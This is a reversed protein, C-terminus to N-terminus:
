ETGDWKLKELPYWHWYMPVRLKRTYHYRARTFLLYYGIDFLSVPRNNQRRERFINASYSFPFMFPLSVKGKLTLRPIDPSSVPILLGRDNFAVAGLGNIIAIYQRAAKGWGFRDAQELMISWDVRPSMKKLFLLELLPVHFREHISHAVMLALEATIDPVPCVVGQIKKKLPNEWMLDSSIYESKRCYFGRHLDIRLLGPLDVDAEDKPTFMRTQGGEKQMTKLTKEFDEPKVLIDVDFTVYSPQRDTKVCLYPISAASLTSNVFELTAKLRALWRNGEAIVTDLNRSLSPPKAIHVDSQLNRAFVYLVRNLSALRLVRDWDTDELDASNVAAPNDTVIDLILKSERDLKATM